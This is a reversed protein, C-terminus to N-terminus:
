FNSQFTQKRKGYYSKIELLKYSAFKNRCYNYAEVARYYDKDREVNSRTLANFIQKLSSVAQYENNSSSNEPWFSVESLHQALEMNFFQGTYGIAKIGGDHDWYLVGKPPDKSINVLEEVHHKNLLKNIFLHAYLTCVNSKYKGSEQFFNDFEANDRLNVNEIRHKFRILSRDFENLVFLNSWLGPWYKDILKIEDIYKSIEEAFDENLKGKGFNIPIRCNKVLLIYNDEYTVAYQLKEAVFLITKIIQFKKQKILPNETFSNDDNLCKWDSSLENVLYTIFNENVQHLLTHMENDYENSLVITQLVYFCNQKANVDGGDEDNLSKYIEKLASIATKRNNYWFAARDILFNALPKSFLNGTYGIAEIGENLAWYDYKDKHMEAKKELLKVKDIGLLNNQQLYRFERAISSFKCKIDNKDSFCKDITNLSIPLENGDDNILGANIRADDKEFQNQYQDRGSLVYKIYKEWPYKKIQHCFFQVHNIFQNKVKQEAFNESDFFEALCYKFVRVAGSGIIDSNNGLAKWFTLMYKEKNYGPIMQSGVLSIQAAMSFIFHFKPDYCNRFVLNEVLDFLCGNESVFGRIIAIASFFEQYTEHSFNLRVGEKDEFLKVLGTDELTKLTSVDFSITKTYNNIDENVSFSQWLAHMEMIQNYAGMLNFVMKKDIMNESKVGVHKELYLISKSRIFEQYLNSSNSIDIDELNINCIEPVQNNNNAIYKLIHPKLLECFLFSELPIGLIKSTHNNLRATLFHNLKEVFTNFVKESTKYEKLVARMYQTIYKKQQKETYETLKYIALSQQQKPPLSLKNTAYPRTTLLCSIEIPKEQLFNNILSITKVDKIEDFSDFILLVSGKIRMDAEFAEKEWNHHMNLFPKLNPQGQNDFQLSRLPINIIWIPLSINKSFKHKDLINTCFSSKGYGAPGLLISLHNNIRIDKMFDKQTGRYSYDIGQAFPLYINGPNEAVKLRATSFGKVSKLLIYVKENFGVPKCTFIFTKTCGNNSLYLSSYIEPNKLLIFEAKEWKELDSELNKIEAFRMQNEQFLVDLEDLLVNYNVGEIIYHRTNRRFIISLDYYGEGFLMQNEIYIGYPMGSKVDLKKEHSHATIQPFYQINKLIQYISGLRKDIIDNIKYEKGALTIYNNQYKKFLCRVQEDSLLELLNEQPKLKLLSNPIFVNNKILLIVKVNDQKNILNCVKLSQQDSFENINHCNIVLFKTENGKFIEVIDQVITDNFEIYIWNDIKLNQTEEM